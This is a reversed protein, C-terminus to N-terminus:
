LSCFFPVLFPVALDLLIGHFLALPVFESGSTKTISPLTTDATTAGGVSIIALPGFWRAFLPAFVIASLERFINYLLAITGLEAGKVETILISSLSYYGFGSGVAFWDTLSFKPFLVAMVSIGAWTAVATVLPLIILRKDISRLSSALNRNQGIGFGVCALLVCLCYFSSQEPIHEGIGMVGAVCGLVFCLVIVLSDKCATWLGNLSVGGGKEDAEWSVTNRADAERNESEGALSADVVTPVTRRGSTFKWFLLSVLCCALSATLAALLSEAGLVDLSDMLMRNCGVEAGIFFLLIWISFTLVKGTWPQPRRRLMFGVLAAGWLILLVELM